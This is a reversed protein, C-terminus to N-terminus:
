NAVRYTQGQLRIKKISDFCFTRVQVTRNLGQAQQKSSERLPPLFSKIEDHSLFKGQGDRYALVKTTKVKRQGPTFQTRLYLKGNHSIVRNAYLWEGWPLSEATFNEAQAGQRDSERVISNQYDVGIFGVLRTEKYIKGFPNKRARSDTLTQLGAIVTGRIDAIKELLKDYTLTKM